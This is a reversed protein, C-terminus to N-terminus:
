CVEVIVGTAKQVEELIINEDSNSDSLHLIYIKKLKKFDAQKLAKILTELSMHNKVIRNRLSVHIKGDKVKKDLVSKIYNCEIMLYDCDPIIYKLYATDTIFVLSEKTNFDEIFFSVPESVDHIAKFPKIALRNFFKWCYDDNTDKSFYNLRHGVVELSEAAGRTMYCDVGAEMLEKVSKAHDMHEHTVLCAELDRLRFKMAQQIKKFPLGAELLIKTNNINVLYCNGKSGSGIVKIDIM